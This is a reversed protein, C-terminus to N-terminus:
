HGRVQGVPRNLECFLNPTIQGSDYDWIIIRNFSQYTYIVNGLNVIFGEM